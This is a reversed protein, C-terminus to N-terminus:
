EGLNEIEVIFKQVAEVIDKQTFIDPFEIRVKIRAKGLRTNVSIPISTQFVKKNEDKSQASESPKRANRRSKEHKRMESIKAPEKVFKEILKPDDIRLLSEWQSYSLVQLTAISRLQEPLNEILKSISILKSVVARSKGLKKAVERQTMGSDVLRKAVFAEEFARLDDRNKNERYQEIIVEEQDPEAKVINVRCPIKQLSLRKYATLRNSGTILVFKGSDVHYNVTIPHILGKSPDVAGDEKNVRKKISYMLSRMRGEDQFKRIQLGSEIRDVDVLWYDGLKQVGKTVLEKKVSEDRYKSQAKKREIDRVRERHEQKWDKVKFGLTPDKFAM